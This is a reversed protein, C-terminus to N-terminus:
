IKGGTSIVRYVFGMTSAFIRPSIHQGFARSRSYELTKRAVSEGYSDKQFFKKSKLNELGCFPVNQAKLFQEIIYGAKKIIFRDEESPNSPILLLNYTEMIKLLTAEDIIELIRVIEIFTSSRINEPIFDGSSNILSDRHISFRKDIELDTKKPKTFPIINSKIYPITHECGKFSGEVIMETTIGAPLKFDKKSLLAEILISYIEKLIERRNEPNEALRRQTSPLNYVANFGNFEDTQPLRDESRLKILGEGIKEQVARYIEAIDQFQSLEFFRDFIGRRHEPMTDVEYIAEKAEYPNRM